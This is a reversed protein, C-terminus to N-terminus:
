LVLGRKKMQRIQQFDPDKYFRTHPLKHNKIPVPLQKNEFQRILTILAESEHRSSQYTLEVFNKDPIDKLEYRVLIDGADVKTIMWHISFGTPQNNLMEWLNCMTGRNEPLLGHHVNLCGVTPIRLVEPSYINRTRLNFVLDPNLSKLLQISDPHNINKVYHVSEFCRDRQKLFSTVMNKLMICGTRWGGILIFRFIKKLVGVTLNDIILLSLQHESALQQTLTQFLLQYNDRVFTARSTVFLINM